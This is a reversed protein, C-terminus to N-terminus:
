RDKAETGAVATIGRARTTDMLTQATARTLATTTRPLTITTINKQALTTDPDVALFILIPIAPSIIPTRHLPTTGAM